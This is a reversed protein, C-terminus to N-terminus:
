RGRDLGQANDYFTRTRTGGHANYKIVNRRVRARTAKERSDSVDGHGDSLCPEFVYGYFTVCCVFIRLREPSGIPGCGFLAM